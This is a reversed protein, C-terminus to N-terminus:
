IVTKHVNRPPPAIGMAQYIAAQDADTTATKRVHLTKGDRRRFTTTTRQLTSLTRRLSTWNDHYGAKKMPTRLVQVAQYALVPIFLHGDARHQKHHFIPHLGLEPKLSCFVAEADTLTVYTQWMTDADWDLVNSRLCYVGPRTMMTGEVPEFTWTVSVAKRAEQDPTITVDYHRAVRTNEKQLRGVRRQVHDFSKRTGPRALGEHLKQLGSEFRRLISGETEARAESFYRLHAETFPTGDEEQKTVVEKYVEVRNRSATVIARIEEADFIGTNDRSVVLYRYGNSRLWALNADDAIGRDMIVVAERPAGLSGLMGELTECETVTGAFARSRRVFGSADLVLGLTLLPSDTRGEKSHDRKAKPQDAAEGEYFVNTMDYLAITSEFELLSQARAFLHDEIREQHVRLRDSARYLAVDSLDGFDIGLLEGLASTRRLWRSTARESGPEAMRAAITALACCRQRRNFGLDDLLEPLGLMDLAALAAHEIGVSRGDSDAASAIDVTEWDGESTEGGQRELLRAAIRRAEAEIKPAPLVLDLVTQGALLEETRRCLLPWDEQDIAFHRGLNLLTHQRVKGDLRQSEVMRFTIRATGDAASGTTTQRIYM